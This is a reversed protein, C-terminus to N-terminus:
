RKCGKGGVDTLGYGSKMFIQGLFIKDDSFGINQSLVKVFHGFIKVVMKRGIVSKPHYFKSLPSLKRMKPFQQSSILYIRGSNQQYKL